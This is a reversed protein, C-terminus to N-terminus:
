DTDWGRLLAVAARAYVSAVRHLDAEDGPFFWHTMGTVMDFLAMTALKPERVSFIQQRCGAEIVAVMTDRYARRLVNIEALQDAPLSRRERMTVLVEGRRRVNFLIHQHIASRIAEDPAQDATLVPLLEANFDRQVGMCIAFLIHQKGPFHHYLSSPRIELEAALDRVSAAEFGKETFLRTASELVQETRLNAGPTAREPSKVGGDRSVM